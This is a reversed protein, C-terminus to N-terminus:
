CLYKINFNMRIQICVCRVYIALHELIKNISLKGVTQYAKYLRAQQSTMVCKVNYKVYYM